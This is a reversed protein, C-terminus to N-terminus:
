DAKQKNLDIFLETQNLKYGCVSAFGIKLLDPFIFPIVCVKLAYSFSTDGILKFWITGVTYCITTAFIMSIVYAISKNKFKNTVFSVIFAAPIYGIIYGGTNGLLVAFGAKYGSFVPIGIAGMLIYLAVVILSQCPSLLSSVIYIILLSLSIPIIGITISLPSLVSVLAVCIAMVCIKKTSRNM